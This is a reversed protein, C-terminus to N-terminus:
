KQQQILNFESSNFSNSDGIVATKMADQISQGAKQSWDWEAISKNTYVDEISHSTFSSGDLYGITEAYDVLCTNLKTSFVYQVNGLYIGSILESKNNPGVTLNSQYIAQPTAEEAIKKYWVAGDKACQQKQEVTAPMAPASDAAVNQGYTAPNSPQISTNSKSACGAALLIVIPFALLIKKM